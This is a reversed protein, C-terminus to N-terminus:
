HLNELGHDERRQKLHLTYIGIQEQKNGVVILNPVENCMIRIKQEKFCQDIYSSDLESRWEYVYTKVKTPRLNKPNVVIEIFQQYDQRGNSHTGEIDFYLSGVIKNETSWVKLLEPRIKKIHTVIELLPVTEKMYLLDNYFKELHEVRCSPHTLVFDLEAILNVNSLRTSRELPIM